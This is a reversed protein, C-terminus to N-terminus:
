RSARAFERDNYVQLSVAEVTNVSELFLPLRQDTPPISRSRVGAPCDAQKSSAVILDAADASEVPRAVLRLM